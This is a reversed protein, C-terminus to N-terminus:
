LVSVADSVAPLVTTLVVGVTSGATLSATLTSNAALTATSNGSIAVSLGTISSVPAIAGSSVGAIQMRERMVTTTGFIVTETDVRKDITGPEDVGIWDDAMFFWGSPYYGSFKNSLIM